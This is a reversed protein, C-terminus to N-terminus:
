FIYIYIQVSAGNERDWNSEMSAFHSLRHYRVFDAIRGLDQITQEGNAPRVVIGDFGDAEVIQENVIDFKRHPTVVVDADPTQADLFVILEEALKEFDKEM